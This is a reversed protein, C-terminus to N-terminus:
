INSRSISTNRETIDTPEALLAAASSPTVCGAMLWDSRLSSSAAPKGRNRRSRPRRCGVGSACAKSTSTSRTKTPRLLMSCRMRLRLRKPTLVSRM